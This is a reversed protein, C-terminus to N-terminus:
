NTRLIKCLCVPKELHWNGERSKKEGFFSGRPIFAVFKKRAISERGTVWGVNQFCQLFSLASVEVLFIM